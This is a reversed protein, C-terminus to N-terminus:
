GYRTQFKDEFYIAGTPCEPICTGCEVCEITVYAKGKKKIIAESPCIEICKGCGDCKEKDITPEM